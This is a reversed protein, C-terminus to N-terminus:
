AIGLNYQRGAHKGPGGGVLRLDAAPEIMVAVPREIGKGVEVVAHEFVAVPQHEAVAERQDEAGNRDPGDEHQAIGGSRARQEVGKRVLGAVEIELGILPGAARPM